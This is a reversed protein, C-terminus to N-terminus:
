AWIIRSVWNPFGIWGSRSNFAGIMVDFHIGLYLCLLVEGGATALAFRRIWIASPCIVAVLVGVLPLLICLSLLYTHM